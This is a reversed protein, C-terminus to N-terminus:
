LAEIGGMAPCGILMVELLNVQVLICKADLRAM